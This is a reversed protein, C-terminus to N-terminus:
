AETDWINTPVIKHKTGWWAILGTAALLIITATIAGEPGFVVNYAFSDTATELKFVSYTAVGGSNPLGLIINQCFNWATHAAIAAWPSDMWIVLAACLLGLGCLGLFPVFGFGPNLAHNIAFVPVIVLAAFVHNGYRRVMHQHAFIRYILEEAGSQILMAVFVILLSIPQFSVFSIRVDGTLMAIFACLLNAGLGCLLGVAFMKLTNGKTKTTLSKLIPRNRPILIIILLVLLWIGQFRVYTLATSGVDTTTCGPSLMELLNNLPQKFLRGNLVLGGWLLITSVLGMVVFNDILSFKKKKKETNRVEPM